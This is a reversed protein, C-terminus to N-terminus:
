EEIYIINKNVVKELQYSLDELNKKDSEKITNITKFEKKILKELQSSLNDLNKKDSKKITDITKLEKKVLIPKEKKIEQIPPNKIPNKEKIITSIKKELIPKETHVETIVIPLIPTNETIIKSKFSDNRNTSNQQKLLYIYILYSFSMIFLLLSLLIFPTRRSKKELLEQNEESYYRSFDNFNDTKKNLM